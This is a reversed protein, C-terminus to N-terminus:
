KKFMKDLRQQTKMIVLPMTLPISIIMFMYGLVQRFQGSTVLQLIATIVFGSILAILGVKLLLRPFYYQAEALIKKNTEESSTFYLDLGNIKKPPFYIQIVGALTFVFGILQPGIIWDSLKM